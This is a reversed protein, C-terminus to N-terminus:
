ARTALSVFPSRTNSGKYPTLAAPWKPMGDCRYTFRFATENYDFRLHMSVASKIGGKVIMMYESWNALLIDGTTGVTQNWETPVAPRGLMTYGPSASLGGPPLMMPIAAAGASLTMTLMQTECDQNYNWVAGSRSRANLRSFMKIINETVVSAAAQGAEKAVSILCNSNMVGLPKGIGDGNILADGLMFNIEDGAKMTLYAELSMPSDDLQEDTVYVLVGLKKLRMTVRRWKPQSKTIQGAEEVWYGRVGANRTGTALSDGAEMLMTYTNGTVPISDVQAIIDNETAARAWISTAVQDPVLIGGEEGVAENVGQAAKAEEGVFNIYKTLKADPSKIDGFSKVSKAFEGFSSYGGLGRDFERDHQDTVDTISKGDIKINKLVDGVVQKVTNTLNANLEEVAKAVADDVVVVEEAFGGKILTDAEAAEFEVISGTKHQGFDKLMKVKKKM